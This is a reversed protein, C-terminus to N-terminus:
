ETEQLPLLTGVLVMQTGIQCLKRKQLDSSSHLTCLGRVLSVIVWRLINVVPVTSTHGPAVVTPLFEGLALGEPSLSSPSSLAEWMEQPHSAVFADSRGWAAETSGSERPM